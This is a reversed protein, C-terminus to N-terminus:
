PLRAPVYEETAVASLDVQETEPEHEGIHVFVPGLTGGLEWAVEFSELHDMQLREVLAQIPDKPHSSLLVRLPSRQGLSKEAFIPVCEM